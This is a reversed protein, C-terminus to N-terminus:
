VVVATYSCVSLLTKWDSTVVSATLLVFVIYLWALLSLYFSIVYGETSQSRLLRGQCYHSLVIAALIMTDYHWVARRCVGVSLGVALLYDISTHEVPEVRLFYTSIM